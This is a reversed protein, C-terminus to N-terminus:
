VAGVRGALRPYEQTLDRVVRRVLPLTHEAEAITFIKPESM